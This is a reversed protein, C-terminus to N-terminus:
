EPGVQLRPAVISRTGEDLEIRLDYVGSASDIKFRGLSDPEVTAVVSGSHDEVLTVVGLM